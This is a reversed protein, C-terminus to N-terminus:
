KALRWENFKQLFSDRLKKTVVIVDAMNSDDALWERALKSCGRTAVDNKFFINFLFKFFGVNEEGGSERAFTKKCDEVTIEYVSGNNLSVKFCAYKDIFESTYVGSMLDFSGNYDEMITVSGISVIAQYAIFTKKGNKNIEFGNEKFEITM